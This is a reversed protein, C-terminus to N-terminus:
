VAAQQRRKRRAIIGAWRDRRRRAFSPEGNEIVHPLRNTLAVVVRSKMANVPLGLALLKARQGGLGRAVFFKITDQAAHDAVQAVCV